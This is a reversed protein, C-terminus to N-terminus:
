EALIGLTEAASVQSASLSRSAKQEKSLTALFADLKAGKALVKRRSVTGTTTKGNVETPVGYRIAESIFSGHRSSAKSATLAAQIGRIVLKDSPVGYHRSIAGLVAALATESLKDSTNLVQLAIAEDPTGKITLGTAPDAQPIAISEAPITAPASTAPVSTSRRSM